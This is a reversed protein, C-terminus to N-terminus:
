ADNSVIRVPLARKWFSLVRLVAFVIGGALATGMQWWFFPGIFILWIEQIDQLDPAV